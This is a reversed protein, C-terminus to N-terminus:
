KFMRYIELMREVAREWNFHTRVREIGAGSMARMRARDSALDDIANALAREDRAPVVLGSDGVVEPLAGGDSSIVPVGCAMAEAAPFGFGEYVSPVVAIESEGYHRVLEENGIKGTFEVRGALGLKEILPGTINRHPSGGDVATLVVGAKVLSLAKLLYVFGKKGDEVNGVFLIKGRKKKVGPLPRFIGTDLGNHVVSIKDPPVGFDTGIRSKSDHSVAIIRDLRRSVIKQMLTPYFMVSKFKKKFAATRELVNELDITLPHHITAVVPIGLSKMMLLGYGLSQNDHIIDFGHRPALKRLMLYARYGFSSIEPFAGLRSHLYEYFNIPTFVDFPSSPNIVEAGKKVYYQNNPIKHLVVGKMPLPYPPGVIAHVEHGQRVMEEAIYKLYIGQGGSYPNGRYCLLCIKM